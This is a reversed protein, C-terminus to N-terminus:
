TSAPPALVILQGVMFPQHAPVTCHFSYIGPARAIITVNTTTQPAVAVGTREVPDDIVFTHADDEPNAIAIRLTDGLYVVLTSPSYGYVEKGDLVGGHAFDRELFPFTRAQEHVLLPVTTITANRSRPRYASRTSAVPACSVLLGGFALARGFSM